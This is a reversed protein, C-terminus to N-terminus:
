FTFFLKLGLNRGLGVLDVWWTKTPQGQVNLLDMACRTSEIANYSASM